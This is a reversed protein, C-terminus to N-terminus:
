LYWSVDIGRWEDSWHLINHEAVRLDTKPIKIVCFIVINSLCRPQHATESYLM